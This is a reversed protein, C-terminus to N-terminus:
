EAERQKVVEKYVDPSIWGGKFMEDTVDTMKYEEIISQAEDWDKVDCARGNENIFSYWLTGDSCISEKIKPKFTRVSNTQAWVRRLM